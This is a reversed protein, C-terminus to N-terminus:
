SLKAALRLVALADSVTIFGDGDLDGDTILQETVESLKATVRLLSLADSVTIFGDGDVNGKAYLAPLSVEVYFREFSKNKGYSRSVKAPLGNVTFEELEEESIDYGVPIEFKWMIKHEIGLKIPEYWLSDRKSTNLEYSLPRPILNINENECSVRVADEDNGYEYGELKFDFAEIMKLPEGVAPMHFTNGRTPTITIGNWILVRENDTLSYGEKSKIYITLDYETGNKIPKTHDYYPAAEYSAQYTVGTVEIHENDCTVTMQDRTAGAEYGELYFTFPETIPELPKTLLRMPVRAESYYGKESDYLIPAKIKVGEFGIEFYFSVEEGFAEPYVEHIGLCSVYLYYQTEDLLKGTVKEGNEYQLSYEIAEYASGISYVIETASFNEADEGYKYGEHIICLCFEFDDNEASVPVSAFPTVLFVSVLLLTILRKLNKM